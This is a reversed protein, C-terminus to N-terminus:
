NVAVGGTLCPRKVFVGSYVAYFRKRHVSKRAYSQQMTWDREMWIPEGLNGEFSVGDPGIVHSGARVIEGCAIM